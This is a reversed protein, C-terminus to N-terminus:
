ESLLKILKTLRANVPDKRMANEIKQNSNIIFEECM